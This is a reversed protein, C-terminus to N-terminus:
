NKKKGGSSCSQQQEQEKKALESKLRILADYSRYMREAQHQMFWICVIAIVFYIVVIPFQPQM